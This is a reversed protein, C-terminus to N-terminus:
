PLQADAKPEPVGLLRLTSESIGLSHRPTQLSAQWADREDALRQGANEFEGGMRAVSVLTPSPAPDAIGFDSAAARETAALRELEARLATARAGSVAIAAAFYREGYDASFKRLVGVRRERFEEQVERLNPVKAREPNALFAERLGDMAPEVRDNEFKAANTIASRYAAWVESLNALHKDLDPSAERAKKRVREPLVSVRPPVGGRRYSEGLELLNKLEIDTM